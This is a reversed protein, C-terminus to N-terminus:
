HNKWMNFRFIDNNILWVTIGRRDIEVGNGVIKIFYNSRM